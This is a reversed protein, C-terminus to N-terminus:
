KIYIMKKSSISTKSSASYIYVGTSVKEGFDTSGNWYYQYVGPVHNESIITKVKQGLINYIIISVFMEKPVLLEFRTLPNFPNPYNQSLKFDSPIPNPTDHIDLVVQNTGIIHIYKGEPPFHKTVLTSDLYEFEFTIQDLLNGEYHFSYINNGRNVMTSRYIKEESGVTYLIFVSDEFVGLSDIFLKNISPYEDDLNAKPLGSNALKINPYELARKSSLLGYGYENNPNNQNDSALILIQRLQENTLYPFASLLQSAIGSAIPAAFSTGSGFKYNNLYARAYYCSAGQTVLEPKTRGDFTPGVSSFSALEGKSNVAGVAITNFGDSPATIYKWSDSGENGASSITLIGRSFALESARTIITTKGDMDAYTYDGEGDDFKNYGLSTTTIDVGISDMWEMAVAYNDEEVHTESYINETKALVYQANFAPGIINGEDFGGILSFVATGHDADGDDTHNDRNVFDREALINRSQLAPHTQWAFGADLIGILVGEGSFGADHIIPVDSLEVQSLSPGYNLKYHSDSVDFTKNLRPELKEDRKYNITKVKEIKDVFTYNSIKELQNETLYASVANFWKLKWVIKAGSSNIAEIYESKIPLDEFTIINEGFNKIRRKISRESLSNIAQSYEFSSKLLQTTKNIGKDKFFVFYKTSSQAFTFSALVFISLIIKKM